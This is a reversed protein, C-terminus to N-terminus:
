RDFYGRELLYNKTDTSHNEYFMGGEGGESVIQRLTSLVSSNKVPSPLIDVWDIIIKKLVPFYLLAQIKGFNQCPYTM